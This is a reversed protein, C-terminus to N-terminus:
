LPSQRVDIQGTVAASILATRREQLLDIARQAETTLTDFRATEHDLFQAIATQECLNPCAVRLGRLIDQNINPQGGGSALSIIQPRYALLWYFLFKYEIKLKGSFVCCAQNVSAPFQLIALKGITAGYMAIVVSGAAYVRLTTHDSLALDTIRKECDGLDGDNLDGTNVWPHLGDEYYERNDTKPTTGSGIKEFAHTLKWVEWHEPVDGLWPIGSPKTPANPHLGKTVAHSIVAQRKEKLLEILRRQEAVLGDLKATERDLFEAIARQEAIPPRTVLHSSLSGKTMSPLATNTSYYDFPITVALYYVYRGSTNARIKTWYMTDVTWFRGTVYLPKDVTGKRGLLISEGDYLFRSAYAFVGGSGFVPYGESQEVHKHDSGNQIEVCQKYRVVEWHEPVEGLWEVGSPKYKPYRPFSM